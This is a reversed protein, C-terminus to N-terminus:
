LVVYFQKESGAPMMLVVRGSAESKINVCGKSRKYM